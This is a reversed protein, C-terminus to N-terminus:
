EEKREARGESVRLVIAEASKESGCDSVTAREPM